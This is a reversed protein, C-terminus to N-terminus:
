RRESEDPPFRALIRKVARKADEDRFDDNLTQQRGIGRWALRGRARDVVDIFLSGELLNATGVGGAFRTGWYWVETRPSGDVSFAVHFDAEDRGAKQFGRAMLEEDIWGAIRRGVITNYRAYRASSEPVALQYYTRLAAFDVEPDFDTNVM